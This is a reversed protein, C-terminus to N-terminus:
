TPEAPRRRHSIRAFGVLGGALAFTVVVGVIGAVGKSLGPDDVGRTTYDALPGGATAHAAEGTDLAHESAVKELGDPEASSFRSVGVALAIAVLLGILVFAWTRTSM